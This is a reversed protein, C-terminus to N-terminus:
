FEEEDWDLEKEQLSEETELSEDADWTEEEEDPLPESPEPVAPEETAFEDDSVPEEVTAVPEESFEEETEEDGEWGLGEEDEPLQEDEMMVMELENIVFRMGAPTLIPNPADGGSTQALVVKELNFIYERTLPILIAVRVHELSDGWLPYLEPSSPKYARKDPILKNWEVFMTVTAQKAM